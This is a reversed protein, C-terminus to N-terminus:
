ALVVGGRHGVKPECVPTQHWVDMHAPHEFLPALALRQGEVRRAERKGVLQQTLAAITDDISAQQVSAIPRPPRQAHGHLHQGAQRLLLLTLADLPLQLHVHVGGSLAIAHADQM